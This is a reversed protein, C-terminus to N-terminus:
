GVDGRAERSRAPRARSSVAVVTDHVLAWALVVAVSLCIGGITDTPYHYGLASLTGAYVVAVTLLVALITWRVGRSGQPRSVVLVGIVVLVAGVGTMHTSPYALGEGLTRGVLPKLVAHSALVACTPAGLAFVVGRGLLAASVAVLVVMCAMPVPDGLGVAIRLTPPWGALVDAVERDVRGPGSTGEYRLALLGAVAATVVVFAAAAVRGESSLLSRSVQRRHPAPAALEEASRSGPRSRDRHVTM